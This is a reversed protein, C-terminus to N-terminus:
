PRQAKVSLAKARSAFRKQKKAKAIAINKPLRSKRRSWNKESIFVKVM